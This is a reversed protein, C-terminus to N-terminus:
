AEREEDDLNMGRRVMRHPYTIAYANGGNRNKAPKPRM